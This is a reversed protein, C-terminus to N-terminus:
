FYIVDFLNEQNCWKHCRKERIMYPLIEEGRQFNTFKNQLPVVHLYRKGGLINFVKYWAFTLALVNSIFSLLNESHEWNILRWIIEKM